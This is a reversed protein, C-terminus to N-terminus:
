RRGPRDPKPAPVPIGSTDVSAWQGPAYFVRSFTTETHGYDIALLGDSNIDVNTVDTHTVPKDDGVFRTVVASMTTPETM